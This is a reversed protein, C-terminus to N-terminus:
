KIAKRGRLEIEFYAEIVGRCRVNLVDGMDDGGNLLLILSM